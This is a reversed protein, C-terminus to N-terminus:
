YGLKKRIHDCYKEHDKCQQESMNSTDKMLIEYEMRWEHAKKLQILKSTNMNKDKMVSEIGFLDLTNRSEKGKSKRKAAKQGIPRSMPSSTDCEKVEVPTEPNSSSSYNGSASVKTRKSCKSMFEADFKPQDKLLLWAHEIEFKKGTDQSYIMHADALVDKESSGSRRHKDAQKYCGNFKQFPPHIMNWRSKLQTWSRECFQGSQHVDGNNYANKIRAWYQKSTQDVGIISDKSVNLWSLVLIVDETVLFATRSKKWWFKSRRRRRGHYRRVDGESVDVGGAM